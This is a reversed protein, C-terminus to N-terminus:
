LMEKVARALATVDVPGTTDVTLVPFGTMPRAADAFREWEERRGQDDHVAHRPRTLFRERMVERPAECWVEVGAPSGASEWGRRFWEEDRDALWVSEVLVTGDLMGTIRWLADAALAGLARTPLPSDVADGLAEKLADKSVFPVGLEVALPHALTTKGAGAMGNLVILRDPM